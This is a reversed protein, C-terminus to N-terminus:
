GGLGISISAYPGQFLMDSSQRTAFGVDVANLFLDARYGLGVKVNQYNFSIGAFGGINPVTVNKSTTSRANTAYRPPPHPCYYYTCHWGAEAEHRIQKHQKGFLLAANIGWDISISGGQPNKWIAASADWSISPGIGNFKQSSRGSAALTHWSEHGKTKHFVAPSFHYVWGSPTYTYFYAYAPYTHHVSLTQIGNTQQFNSAKRSLTFHAFRVGMGLTSTSDRGFLGIGVDKGAEFDVIFHAESRSTNVRLQDEYGPVNVVRTRRHIYRYPVISTHFTAFGSPRPGSAQSIKGTGQSRGYRVSASFSWDSGEPRFTIKESGTDNRSPKLIQTLPATIGAQDVAPGLTLGLDKESYRITERQVDVDIWVTPEKGAGAAFVPENTYTLAVLAVTSVTALLRSRMAGSANKASYNMREGM